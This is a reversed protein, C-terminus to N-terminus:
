IITLHYSIYKVCVDSQMVKIEPLRKHRNWDVPDIHDFIHFRVFMTHDGDNVFDRLAVIRIEKTQNANGPEFRVSCVDIFNDVNTQGIEVVVFCKHYKECVIPVTNRMTLKM